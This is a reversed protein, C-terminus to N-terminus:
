FDFRLEGGWMRPLGPNVVNTNGGNSAANFPARSIVKVMMDIVIENTATNMGTNKMPPTMPRTKLSNATTRPRAM